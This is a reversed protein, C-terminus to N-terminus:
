CATTVSLAIILCFARTQELHPTSYKQLVFEQVRKPAKKAMKVTKGVRKRMLTRKGENQLVEGRGKKPLKREEMGGKREERGGKRDRM